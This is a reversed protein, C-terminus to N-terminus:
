FIQALGHLMVPFVLNGNVGWAIKGPCYPCYLEDSFDPCDVVGDCVRHSQGINRMEAVCGIFFIFYFYMAHRFVPSWTISGNRIRNKKRNKFPRLTWQWKFVLGTKLGCIIAAMHGSFQVIGKTQSHNVIESLQVM